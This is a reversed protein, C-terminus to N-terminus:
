PEAGLQRLLAGARPDGPQLQLAQRAADIADQQRGLNVLVVARPFALEAHRGDPNVEDLLALATAAEGAASLAFALNARYSFNAPELALLARFDTAAEAHRGLNGVASAHLELARIREEDNMPLGLAKSLSAAAEDFRQMRLLLAGKQLPLLYANRGLGSGQEAAQFAALAAELQGSAHLANARQFHAQGSPEGLQAAQSYDSIALSFLQREFYENGRNLLARARGVANAPADHDLKAVADSWVSLSDKMSQVREIALAGFLLALAAGIILITRPRMGIFPLAFLLPLTIAWLYSRYLVFPDQVWVTAFEPLFLMAPTFLAWGLLRRWDAFRIMLLLAGAILALYLLPGLLQPWSNLTLPFPPRLDISMWQVNPIVWLLGYKFFLWSQNLMSLGHMDAGIGPRLAELQRVLDASQADFTRGLLYDYRLALLLAALGTLVLAAAGLALLQQRPLPRQCLYLALAPLPLMLAHEKSLLALLWCGAALLLWQPRQRQAAQLTALLALVSFLTALLISRQILYAVAYVAVPNFAFLLVGLAAASHRSSLSPAEDAANLPWSSTDILRRWLSWLALVTSFHILLNGIRLGAPRDGFVAAQWVFSGYSLLREKLMLLSGYDAFIRGDALLNDDFILANGLGPLYIAGLGFLACLALLLHHPINM